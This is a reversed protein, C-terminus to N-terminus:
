LNFWIKTDNQIISFRMLLADLKMSFINHDIYLDQSYNTKWPEWPLWHEISSIIRKFDTQPIKYVSFDANLTKELEDVKENYERWFRSEIDGWRPLNEKISRIITYLTTVDSMNQYIIYYFNNENLNKWFEIMTLM